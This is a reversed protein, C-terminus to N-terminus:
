ARLKEKRADEMRSKWVMEMREWHKRETPTPAGAVLSMCAQFAKRCREYESM